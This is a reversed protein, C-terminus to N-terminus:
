IDDRRAVDDLTSNAAVDRSGDHHRIALEPCSM